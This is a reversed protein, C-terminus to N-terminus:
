VSKLFQIQLSIPPLPMRIQRLEKANINFQVASRRTHRLFEERGGSSELFAKLVEPLLRARDVRIRMLHSDFTWDGDPHVVVAKGLHERSGIARALVIDGDRLAFRGVQSEPLNLWRKDTLQLEGGQINAVRLDLWRDEIPSPKAMTGLTPAEALIEGLTLVSWRKPNTAPDGFMDHFVAPFLHAIKATAERRLRVISEAQALLDVIRQQEGVPPLQVEIDLIQKASIHKVTAFSTSMEIADLKPQIGYFVYESLVDNSFKRLRCVRQNLLAKPGSWRRCRFNGDMGILYDGPKVLFEDRFKGSYYAETSEKGLDRIRILPVGESKSFFETKFAFGNQVELIERLKATRLTM